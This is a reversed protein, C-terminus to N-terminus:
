AATGYQQTWDDLTSSERLAAHARAEAVGVRVIEAIQDDSLGAQAAVYASAELRRVAAAVTDDM